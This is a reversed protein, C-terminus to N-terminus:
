KGLVVVFFRGSGFNNSEEAGANSADAIVVVRKKVKVALKTCM